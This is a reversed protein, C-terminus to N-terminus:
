LTTSARLCSGKDTVVNTGPKAPRGSCSSSKTELWQRARVNEIGGSFKAAIAPATECGGGDPYIHAPMLAERM